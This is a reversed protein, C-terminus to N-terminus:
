EARKGHKNSRRKVRLFVLCAIAVAGMGVCAGCFDIWVDQVLSGRGTFIQITEDALAIAMAGFLCYAVRGPNLRRFFILLLAGLECGLVAFEFFHAMKRVLNDTVNGPGVIPELVPEVAERVADSKELSEQATDLSNWWIFCITLVVLLVIGMKAFKM